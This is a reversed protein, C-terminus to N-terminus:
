SRYQPFFNERPTWDVGNSAEWQRRRQVLDQYRAADHVLRAGLFPVTGSPAFSQKYKFIGDNATYGGGLVFISRGTDRGWRILEHKLLDNPRLPFYEALTGGLFSYLYHQSCLVLETSVVTDKQLVHVLLTHESCQALLVEFFQRSFYYSERADNREMTAYYINLFDGLREGQTAFEVRLDSARARNVNKRVKHAYDYWLADDDLALTRIV